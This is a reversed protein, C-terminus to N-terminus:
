GTLKLYSEVKQNATRLGFRRMKRLEIGWGHAIMNQPIPSCGCSLTSSVLGGVRGRPAVLGMGALQSVSGARIFIFAFSAPTFKEGVKALINVQALLFMPQAM